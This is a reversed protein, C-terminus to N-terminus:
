SVSITKEVRQCRSSIAGNAGQGRRNKLDDEAKPRGRVEAQPFDPIALHALVVLCLRQWIVVGLLVGLFFVLLAGRRVAVLRFIWWGDRIVGADSAHCRPM